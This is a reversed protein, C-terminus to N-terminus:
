GGYQRLKKQTREDDKTLWELKEKAKEKPVWEVPAWAIATQPFKPDTAVGYLFDGIMSGLKVCDLDACGVLPTDPRAMETLLTKSIYTNFVGIGEKDRGQERMAQIAGMTNPWWWGIIAKFAGKEPHAKFVAAFNNRTLSIEEQTSVGGDIFPYLKMRPQFTMFTKLLDGMMDFPPYFGRSEATHLVGGEAGTYELMKQCLTLSITWPDDLVSPSDVAHTGSMGVVKIGKEHAEKVIGISESRSTYLGLGVAKVNMQMLRRAIARESDGTPVGRLTVPQAGLEELRTLVMSVWRQWPQNMPGYTLPVGIRVKEAAAVPSTMVGGVIFCLTLVGVLVVGVKWNRM